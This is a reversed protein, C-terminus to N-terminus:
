MFLSALYEAARSVVSMWESLAAGTGELFQPLQGTLLSFLFSLFM